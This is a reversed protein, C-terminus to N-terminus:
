LAKIFTVHYRISTIARACNLHRYYDERTYSDRPYSDSTRELLRIRELVSELTWSGLGNCITAIFLLPFTTFIHYHSKLYYM